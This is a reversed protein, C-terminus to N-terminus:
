LAVRAQIWFTAFYFFIGIRRFSAIIKLHVEFKNATLKLTTSHTPYCPFINIKLM